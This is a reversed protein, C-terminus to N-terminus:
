LRLPESTVLRREIDRLVAERDELMKRYDVHDTRRIEVPLTELTLSVLDNLIEREHQTLELIM